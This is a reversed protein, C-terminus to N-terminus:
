QLPIGTHLRRESRAFAKAWGHEPVGSGFKTDARADRGYADPNERSEDASRKHSGEVACQDDRQQELARRLLQLSVGASFKSIAGDTFREAFGRHSEGM